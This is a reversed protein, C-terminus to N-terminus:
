GFRVGDQILVELNPAQEHTRLMALQRV